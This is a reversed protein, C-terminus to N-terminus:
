CEYKTLKVEEYVFTCAYTVESPDGMTLTLSGLSTIIANTFRYKGRIRKQNDLMDIDISKVTNNRFIEENPSTRQHRLMQVYDYLNYYNELLEDAKFEITIQNLNNNIRSIPFHQSENRFDSTGYEVFLDPLVVNKVYSNYLRMDIKKNDVTPLNSLNATWRDGHFRNIAFAM